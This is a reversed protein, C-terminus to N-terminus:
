IYMELKLEKMEIRIIMKGKKEEETQYINMIIDQEKQRRTLFQLSTREPLLFRLFEQIHLIIFCWWSNTDPVQVRIWKILKQVLLFM